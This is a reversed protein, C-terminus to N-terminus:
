STGLALQLTRPRNNPGPNVPLPQTWGQTPYPRSPAWFPYSGLTSLSGIHAIQGYSCSWTTSVTAVIPTPSVVDCAVLRRIELQLKSCATEQPPLNRNLASRIADYERPFGLALYMVWQTNNIQCDVAM